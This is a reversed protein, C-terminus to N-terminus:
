LSGYWYDDDIDLDDYGQPPCSYASDELMNWYEQQRKLRKAILSWLEEEAEKGTKYWTKM